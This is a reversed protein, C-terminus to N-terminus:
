PIMEGCPPTYREVPVFHEHCLPALELEESIIELTRFAARAPVLKDLSFDSFEEVTPHLIRQCGKVLEAPATPGAYYSIAGDYLYQHPRCGHSTHACAEM